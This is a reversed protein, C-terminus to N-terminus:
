SWPPTTNLNLIGCTYHMRDMSVSVANGDNDLYDVYDKILWGGIVKARYTAQPTSSIKEWKFPIKM